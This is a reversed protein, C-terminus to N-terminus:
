REVTMEGVTGSLELRLTPADDPLDSDNAVVRRDGIAMGGRVDIRVNRPVEVNLEGIGNRASIESDNRWEGYLDLNTEGVRQSIDVRAPSANGLRAVSFDGLSKRLRILEAPAALPEGFRIRHEGTGLELDVTRLLLGGLEFSSEGLGVVGVLDFPTDRPLRITVRNDPNNGAGRLMVGLMGGRASSRIRLIQGDPGDILEEEFRFAREDVRSEISLGEGPAAAVIDFEGIELDLEVRVVGGIAAAARLMDESSEFRPATELTADDGVEGQEVLSRFESLTPLDRRVDRQEPPTDSREYLVQMGALAVMGGIFLATLLLCGCCGIRFCGPRQKETM